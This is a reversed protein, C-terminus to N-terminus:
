YGMLGLVFEYIMDGFLLSIVFSITFFPVMPVKVKRLNKKKVLVYVLSYLLAIFIGLWFMVLFDSFEQILGLAVLILIDGVGFSKKMFFILILLIGVIIGAVLLNILNINFGVFYIVSFLLFIHVFVKPVAKYICDFYSLGFLLCLVFYYILSVGNIYFLLFCCGLFFESLTYYANIKEKCKPCRGHVILWGVVPLLEYWTLKRKCKECHSSEIFLDPVKYGNDLRYLTANIFSAFAAGIFFVCIYIIFM